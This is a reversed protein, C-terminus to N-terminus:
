AIFLHPKRKKKDKRLKNIKIDPATGDTEACLGIASRARVLDALRFCTFIPCFMVKVMVTVLRPGSVVVFTEKPSARGSGSFRTEAEHLLPEVDPLRQSTALRATPSLAVNVRTAVGIVFGALLSRFNVLVAKISADSANSGLGAFLATEKCRRM